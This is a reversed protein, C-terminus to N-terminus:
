HPLEINNLVKLNGLPLLKLEVLRLSNAVRVKVSQTLCSLIIDYSWGNWFVAHSTSITNTPSESTFNAFKTFYFQYCSLLTHLTHLSHILFPFYFTVSIAACALKSLSFSDRWTRYCTSLFCINPQIEKKIRKGKWIIM